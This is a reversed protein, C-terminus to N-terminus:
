DGDWFSKYTVNMDGCLTIEVETLYSIQTKAVTADEDFVTRDPRSVCGSNDIWQQFFCYFIDDNFGTAGSCQCKCISHKGKYGPVLNLKRM